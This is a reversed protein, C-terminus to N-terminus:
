SGQASKLLGEELDEVESRTITSHSHIFWGTKVTLSHLESVSLFRHVTATPAKSDANVYQTNFSCICMCLSLSIGYMLVKTLHQDQPTNEVEFM